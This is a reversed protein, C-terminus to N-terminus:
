AQADQESKGRNPRIKNKTINLVKKSLVKFQIDSTKLIFKLMTIIEKPKFSKDTENRQPNSSNRTHDLSNKENLEIM